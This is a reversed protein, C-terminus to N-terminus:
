GHVKQGGVQAPRGPSNTSGLAETTEEVHHGIALPWDPLVPVIAMPARVLSQARLARNEFWM